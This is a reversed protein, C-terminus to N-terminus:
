CNCFSVAFLLAGSRVARISVSTPDISTVFASHQKQWPV